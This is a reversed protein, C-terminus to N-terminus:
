AASKRAEWRHVRWENRLAQATRLHQEESRTHSAARRRLSDVEEVDVWDFRRDCGLVEELRDDACSRSRSASREAADIREELQELDAISIPLVDVWHARIKRAIALKM